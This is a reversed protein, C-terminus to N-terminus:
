GINSGHKYVLETIADALTQIRTMKWTIVSFSCCYTDWYAKEPSWIERRKLNGSKCRCIGVLPTTVVFHANTVSVSLVLVACCRVESPWIFPRICKRIKFKQMGNDKDTINYKKKWVKSPWCLDLCTTSPYSMVFTSHWFLQALPGLYYLIYFITKSIIYFKKTKADHQSIWIVPWMNCRRSAFIL